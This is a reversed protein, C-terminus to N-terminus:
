RVNVYGLLQKHEQGVFDCFDKLREVHVMYIHFYEFFKTVTVKIDVSMSYFDTKTCNHIIHANFGIGIINRNLQSKKLKYMIRVEQIPTISQYCLKAGLDYNAIAKTVQM